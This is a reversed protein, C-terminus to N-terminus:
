NQADDPLGLVRLVEPYVSDAFYESGLLTFHIRDEARIERSKGKGGVQAHTLMDGNEDAVFPTTDLYIAGPAEVAEKQIGRILVLKRELARLGMTPLGLWLVTRDPAAITELFEDMRARYASPWDDHNW